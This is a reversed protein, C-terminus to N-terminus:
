SPPLPARLSAPVARRESWRWIVLGVAMVAVLASADVLDFGRQVEGLVGVAILTLGVTLGGAIVVASLEVLLPVRCWRPGPEARLVPTLFAMLLLAAAGLGGGLALM